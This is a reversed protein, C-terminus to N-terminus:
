PTFRDAAPTEAYVMSTMDAFFGLEALLPEHPSKTPAADDISEIRLRNPRRRPLTTLKQFAARAVAPEHLEGFTLLSRGGKEMYLVLEGRSLVVWAGPVRRPRARRETEPKPSPPISGYPNAPDVASLATMASAPERPEGRLGERAARLREVAGPLAFQSGPLGEVFHGRRLRGRDEMERLVPYLEQYGGPLDEFLAAARSALGYRELLLTARAHARETPSPAPELLEAVLSWRGGAYRAPGARRASRSRRGLQHLPFFTDNTIQGAWM